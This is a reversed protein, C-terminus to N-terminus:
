KMHAEFMAMDPEADLRAVIGALEPRAPPYIKMVLPDHGPIVRDIGGALAMIREYSDMMQQVDLVIPFPRRSRINEYYHSADSMLVIWGRRTHVRVVQHGCTHGPMPHLSIGPALDVRGNHLFVRDAFNLRVVEVIDDVEYAFKFFANRMHRGAAFHIEPEQIHFNAKPLRDFNGAHDYHLHTVIADGVRGPDLGVLSLSEIPCRLWDRNRRLATAQSFGIDVVFSREKGVVAWVFYDMDMPGDHPDGLIFHDRRRAPRQAYRIAYVEYEPLPPMTSSM